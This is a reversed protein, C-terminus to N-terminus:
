LFSPWINEGYDTSTKNSSYNLPLFYWFYISDYWSFENFPMAAYSESSVNRQNQLGRTMPFRNVFISPTKLTRNTDVFGSVFLYTKNSIELISFKSSILQTTWKMQSFRLKFRFRMKTSKRIKLSFNEAIDTTWNFWFIYSM